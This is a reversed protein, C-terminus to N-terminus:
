LTNLNEKDNTFKGGDTIFRLLKSIQKQINITNILNHSLVTISHPEYNDNFKHEKMFYIIKKLDDNNLNTKVEHTIKVQFIQM